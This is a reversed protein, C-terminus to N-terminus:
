SRLTLPFSVQALCNAGGWLAVHLPRGSDEGRDVAAILAASGESDHGEGVGEMGYLPVGEGVLALLQSATPYDSYVRLLKPRVADYGSIVDRITGPCVQHRFTLSVGCPHYM